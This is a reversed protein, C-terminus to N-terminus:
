SPGEGKLASDLEAVRMKHNLHRDVLDRYDAPHMTVTARGIRPEGQPVNIDVIVTPYIPWNDRALQWILRLSEDTM